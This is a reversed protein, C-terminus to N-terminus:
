DQLTVLAASAPPLSLSFSGGGGAITEPAGPTWSGDGGVVAGAFSVGDSRDLAQGVLRQVAATRYGPAGDLRVTAGRTAEKNILAVRLTADDALVAHAVVNLGSAVAVPAMRGPGAAHVLLLAYYLPRATYPAGDGGCFPLYVGACTLGGGLGTGTEVNVGTAGQEAATFLHDIAWLASALVDSVGPKGFGSASNTEDLRWSIGAAAAARDVAAFCAVTRAMLAPSLMNAISANEPSDGQATRTMPYFHHTALVLRGADAGVTASFFSPGASSCTTAPAAVPAGPARRAIADAYAAVEASLSDGSWAFSRVGHGPYLDPENGVEAALLAAGGAARIAAVEAAATDPDFQALRLDMIVRWGVRHALAFVRDFDAPTLVLTDAPRAPPTPAWGTLEVSNGGFRLVGPGLNALLRAFAADGSLRPDRLVPMEFGLGLFDAPIRPGPSEAQVTVRATDGASGPPNTPGTADHCAAAVACMALAIWRRVGTTGSAM